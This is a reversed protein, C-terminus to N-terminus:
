RRDAFILALALVAFIAAIVLVFAGIIFAGLVALVALAQSAAAIWSAQRLTDRRENGWLLYLAVFVIALGIVTWKSFDETFAVLVTEVVAIWLAIRFRHQRLWRGTRSTGHPLAARTGVEYM